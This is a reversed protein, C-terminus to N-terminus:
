DLIHPETRVVINQLFAGWAAWVTHSAFRQVVHVRAASSLTSRRPTADLLQETALWFATQDGQKVLVGTRGNIIADVTGTASYAVTPVACAAAEIVVTPLGERRTPLLLLDTAWYVQEMSQEQARYTVRPHSTLRRIMSREEEGIGEAPGVVLLRTAPRHAMQEVCHLLTSLGKDWNLRGVFTVVEDADALAYRRRATIKDQQCAVRFRRIDVGNPSGAGLVAVRDTRWPPPTLVEAVSRSVAVIDTAISCMLWEFGLLAARRLGVYGEQRLGHCLYVRNPVRALAAATLALLTMKPTGAVLVAPRVERIVSLVEFFATVDTTPTPRRNIRVAHFIASEAACMSAVEGKPTDACVLHVEFGQTAMYSLQGRLFILASVPATVAYLLRLRDSM